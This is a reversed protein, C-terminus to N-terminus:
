GTYEDTKEKTQPERNQQAIKLFADVFYARMVKAGHGFAASYLVILGSISVAIATVGSTLVGLMVAVTGLIFHFLPFEKVFYSKMVKM